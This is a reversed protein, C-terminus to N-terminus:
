AFIIQQSYKSKNTVIIGKFTKMYNTEISILNLSSILTQYLRTTESDYISVMKTSVIDKFSNSKRYSTKYLSKFYKEYKIYKENLIMFKNTNKLIDMLIHSNMVNGVMLGKNAIIDDISSVLPINKTHFYNSLIKSSFSLCFINTFLLWVIILIIYGKSSYNLLDTITNFHNVSQNSLTKIINFINDFINHNFRSFYTWLITNM